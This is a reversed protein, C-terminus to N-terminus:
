QLCLKPHQIKYCNGCLGGASGVSGYAAWSVLNPQRLPHVPGCHAPVVYQLIDYSCISLESWLYPCWLQTEMSSQKYKLNSIARLWNWSQWVHSYPSVYLILQWKSYKQQPIQIINFSTWELLPSSSFINMAWRLIMMMDSTDVKGMKMNKRHNHAQPPQVMLHQWNLIYGPFAPTQKKQQQATEHHACITWYM